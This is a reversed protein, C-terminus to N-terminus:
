SGGREDDSGFDLSAILEDLEVTDDLNALRRADEARDADTYPGTDPMPPIRLLFGITAQDGLSLPIIPGKGGRAALVRDALKMLMRFQDAPTLQDVLEDISASM